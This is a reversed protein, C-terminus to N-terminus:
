CRKEQLHLDMNAFESKRLEKVKEIPLGIKEAIVEDELVDLLNRANELKNQLIGSAKGEERGEEIMDQIAKCMNYKGDKREYEKVKVLEKSRTYNSVVDFAAEDMSQFYADHNVLDALKKKDESCRIFEFVQKVDTKFVSTDEFRRVDIVKINYNPTMEQLSEPINRFDLMDHLSTPGEWPEEGYYLLFTIIPNLRSDKKFGYLYEGSDLGEPNSRVEKGIVKAQKQYRAVDYGMNRLPFEYDVEEQNEIGVLAFNMGMAVRRLLDRAKGEAESDEERLDESKILQVGKCGIGNIIDAYRSNDDFYHKWKTDKKM